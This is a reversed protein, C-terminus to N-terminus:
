TLFKYQTLTERIVDTEDVAVCVNVYLIFIKELNITWPTKRKQALYDHMIRQVNIDMGETQVREEMIKLFQEHKIFLINQTAM